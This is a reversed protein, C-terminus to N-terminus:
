GLPLQKITKEVMLSRSGKPGVDLSIKPRRSWIQMISKEPIRNPTGKKHAGYFAVGSRDNANLGRFAALMDDITDWAFWTGKNGVVAAINCDLLGTVKVPQSISEVSESVTVELISKPPVNYNVKGTSRRSTSAAKTWENDEHAEASLKLRASVSAEVGMYSAKTEMQTEFESAVSWGFSKKHESSEQSAREDENEESYAQDSDNCIRFTRTSPQGTPASELAGIEIGEIDVVRLNWFQICPRTHVGTTSHPYYCFVTAQNNGPKQLRETTRVMGKGYDVPGGNRWDNTDTGFWTGIPRIAHYGIDYALHPLRKDVLEALEKQLHNRDM